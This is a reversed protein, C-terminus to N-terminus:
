LLFDAPVAFCCNKTCLFRFIFSELRSLKDIVGSNKAADMQRLLILFHQLLVENSAGDPYANEPQNPQTECHNVRLWGKGVAQPVTLRHFHTAIQDTSLCNFASLLSVFIL